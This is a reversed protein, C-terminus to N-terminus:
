NLIYLIIDLLPICNQLLDLVHASYRSKEPAEREKNGEEQKKKLAKEREEKEIAAKRFQQFSEKSSKIATPTVSQRM